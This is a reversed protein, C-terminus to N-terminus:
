ADKVIGEIIGRTLDYEEALRMIGYKSPVYKSLIELRNKEAVKLMEERRIRSNKSSLWEDVSKIRKGACKMSNVYVCYKCLVTPSRMTRNKARHTGVMSLDHGHKCTVRGSVHFKESLYASTKERHCGECLVQCKKLEAVRKPNDKAMRWLKEPNFSKEAPDIHDLELDDTGGCEVCSKDAYFADKNRYYLQMDYSLTM